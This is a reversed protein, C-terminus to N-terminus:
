PGYPWRDAPREFRPHQPLKRIIHIEEGKEDLHVAVNIHDLDVRGMERGPEM